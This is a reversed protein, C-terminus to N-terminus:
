IVGKKLFVGATAAETILFLSQPLLRKRHIKCFKYSCKTKLVGEIAAELFVNNVILCTALVDASM